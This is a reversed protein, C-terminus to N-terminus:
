IEYRTRVFLQGVKPLYSVPYSLREIRSVTSGMESVFVFQQSHGAFCSDAHPYVSVYLITLRLVVARSWRVICTDKVM